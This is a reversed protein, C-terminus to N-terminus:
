EYPNTFTLRKYCSWERDPLVQGFRKLLQMDLTYAMWELLSSDYDISEADLARMMHQSNEGEGQTVTLYYFENM